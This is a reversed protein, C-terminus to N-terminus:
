LFKLIISEFWIGFVIIIFNVLRCVFIDIELNESDYFNLFVVLIYIKYRLIDRWEKLYVGM